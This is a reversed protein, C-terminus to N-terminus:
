PTRYATRRMGYATVSETRRSQRNESLSLAGAYLFGVQFLVLFPLSGYIQHVLAYALGASFYFGLLLELYPLYSKRGRYRKVHWQDSASEIRYKPTRVFGTQRGVLAEIVAKANNLCMGIGLSLLMPLVKLRKKWDEYIERQSVVYFSTVSMTAAFFLPVDFLLMEHWGMNFRVLMSPFILLSLLVMLPYALNASLHFVAEIKVRLPLPSALIKPLLKRATQISGKSWRHQQTKFANMSVPIEAPAVVDPLFVFRWGRLQARYSLDMDETLTDHQWGGASDIAERRWVGATGNFNFFCGSRNRGGHELIFHADLLIGQIRTLLSYDGNLHGWRAQVMGIKEDDFHHVTDKLFSKGPVFDADFVAILDGSATALGAALAGAKFGTRESRHLYHIAVGRARHAECRRRALQATDDTSDDLVQIELREGPYDFAAVADILREVVYLENFVPLQVTVKPLERTSAGTAAFSDIAAPRRHRYRYYLFVMLYRHMGFIALVLLVAFYATLLFTAMDMAVMM